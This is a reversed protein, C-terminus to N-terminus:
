RPGTSRQAGCAIRAPASRTRKVLWSCAAARDPRQQRERAAALEVRVDRPYEPVAGLQASVVSRWPCEADSATDKGLTRENHEPVRSFSVM